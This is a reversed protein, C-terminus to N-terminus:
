AEPEMHLDVLPGISAYNAQITRVTEIGRGTNVIFTGNRQWDETDTAWNLGKEHLMEHMDPIKKGELEKHSFYARAFMQISNREWDKARWLFANAVDERPVNFARSDFVTPGQERIDCFHVSMLSASISVMKAFDYGFWGESNLKDYDHCCFTAEDSQVYGIKFGQMDKAVEIAAYVMHHHLDPDFPRMCHRTVTHFARGDVRIMVPMRPTLQYHHAAEYRKIRDGLSDNM